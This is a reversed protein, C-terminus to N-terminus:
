DTTSDEDQYYRVAVNMGGKLRRRRNAMREIVENRVSVRKTAPVMM